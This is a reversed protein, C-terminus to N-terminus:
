FHWTLDAGVSNTQRKEALQGSWNLAVSLSKGEQMGVGLKMVVGDRSAVPSTVTFANGTNFRLTTEGATPNYRHQWGTEAFVSANLDRGMQWRTGTRLGAESVLAHSEEKGANLAAAGGSEAFGERALSSYSLGVFPELTTPGSLLNYGGDAFLQASRAGYHASDSDHQNGFNVQRDTSIRHWGLAGGGRLTIAGVTRSGYGALWGNDSNASGASNGNLATRTYGAAAGLRAGNGIARDAGFIVGYVSDSYSYTGSDGQAHGWSGLMRGWIGEDDSSIDPSTVEGQAQRLRDNLTDRVQWGEDLLASSIDAHRQGTLSRFAAQAEAATTSALISERLSNGAPLSDVATAVARPNGADAVSAFSTDNRGTTLTVSDNDYALRTGLFLFDPSVSNFRGNVGQEASMIQFTKGTLSEVQPMTLLNTTNEALVAVDGGNLLIKGGSRLRDSRGDPAVEVALHSGPQFTIDGDSTLTGLSNGPAVIGGKRVNVSGTHGNGALIGSDQVTVDSTVSGNVALRGEKVWTSGSYTSNGSLILTGAGTKTLSGVFTKNTLPDRGYDSLLQQKAAIVKRVVDVQDQDLELPQNSSPDDIKGQRLAVNLEDLQAQEFQRRAVTATDSINNSWTDTVAAPMSVALNGLLQGPGNMAKAVDILGWGTIANPTGTSGAIIKTLYGYTHQASHHDYIAYDSIARRTDIGPAVVMEKATTLLVSLAQDNSLYPFRQMVLALPGSAYPASASTGNFYPNYGGGPKTTLAATPAMLCWYRAVGCQNYVQEGHPSYGSVALWSTELDPRYWPLAAMMDPNKQPDNSASIVEVYHYKEAAEATADLWTKEGAASRKNFLTYANIMQATNDTLNERDINSNQGWSQNVMRVGSNGLAAFAATFYNYDLTNSGQERNDDTGNTNAVYLQSAFAIGQMGKGNRSAAIAGSVETGHSDNITPDYNGKVLFPDGKSVPIKSNSTNTYFQYGNDAYNGLTIVTHIRPDNFEPHTTDIGSDLVGIRVGEGTIGQSYAAEAHMANAPWGARFEADKRWSILAAPRDNTFAGSAMLWPPQGCLAYGSYIVFSFTILRLPKNKAFHATKILTCHNMKM